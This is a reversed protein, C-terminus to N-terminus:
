QSYNIISEVNQPLLNEVQLSRAMSSKVKVKVTYRLCHLVTVAPITLWLLVTLTVYDRYLSFCRGTDVGQLETTALFLIKNSTFSLGLNIILTDTGGNGCMLRPGSRAKQKGCIGSVNGSSIWATAVKCIRPSPLQRRPPLHWPKANGWKGGRKHKALFDRNRSAAGPLLIERCNTHPTVSAIIIAYFVPLKIVSSKYDELLSTNVGRLLLAFHRSPEDKATWPRCRFIKILNSAILIKM